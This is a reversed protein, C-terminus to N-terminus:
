GDFNKKRAARSKRRRRIMTLMPLPSKAKTTSGSPVGVVLIFHIGTLNHNSLNYKCVCGIVVLFNSNFHNLKIGEDALSDTCNGQNSTHHYIYLLM